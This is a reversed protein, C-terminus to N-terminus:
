SLVRRITIKYHIRDRAKFRRVDGEPELEIMDCKIDVKEFTGEKLTEIIGEKIEKSVEM